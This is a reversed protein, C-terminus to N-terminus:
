PRRKEARKEAEQLRPEFDDTLQKITAEAKRLKERTEALEKQCIALAERDTFSRTGGDLACSAIAEKRLTHPKLLPTAGKDIARKKNTM